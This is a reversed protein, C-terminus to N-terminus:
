LHYFPGITVETLWYNIKFPRSVDIEDPLLILGDMTSYVRGQFDRSLGVISDGFSLSYSRRDQTITLNWPWWAAEGERGITPVVMLYLVNCTSGWKQICTAQIRGWYSDIEAASWHSNRYLNQFALQCSDMLLVTAAASEATENHLIPMVAHMNAPLDSWAGFCATGAFLLVLILALGAALIPTTNRQRTCPRLGSVDKM